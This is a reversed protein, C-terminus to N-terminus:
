SEIQERPISFNKITEEPLQYSQIISDLQGTTHHLQETMKNITSSNNVFDNIGSAIQKMTLLIQEFAYVQKEVSNSVADTTSVTEVSADLVSTFIEKLKQSAEWGVQVKQTGDEAKVILRDSSRQIESIKKRIDETSSVTNDALRRIETAVIQFNKGAEGASSAELEANFAIIKTQDAISNIINVIEWISNIQDSLAKIGQIMSFSSEKITEMISQNENIKKFGLQLETQTKNITGKVNSMKQAIAKSVQDTDEMTSVVEKVGASQQNSTTLIVKTSSAVDRISGDIEESADQLKKVIERTHTLLNNNVTDALSGFENEEELAITSRLDGVALTHFGDNLIKFRRKIGIISFYSLSTTISLTVLFVLLSLISSRKESSIQSALSQFVFSYYEQYFSKLSEVKSSQLSIWDTPSISISPSLPGIGSSEVASIYELSQTFTPDRKLNNFRAAFDQSVLEL